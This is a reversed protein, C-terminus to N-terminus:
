GDGRAEPQEEEDQDTPSDGREVTLTGFVESKSEIVGTLAVVKYHKLNGDEGWEAEIVGARQLHLALANVMGRLKDAEERLEESGRKSYHWSILWGSIVGLFVGVAVELMSWWDM